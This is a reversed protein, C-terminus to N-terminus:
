PTPAAPPSSAPPSAGAAAAREARIEALLKATEAQQQRTAELAAGVNQGAQGAATMNGILSSNFSAIGFAVAIATGIVTVITAGAAGLVSRRTDALSDKIDRMGDEIRTLRGDMKAEITALKADLERHTPHDSMGGNDGVRYMRALAAAAVRVDASSRRAREMAFDIPEPSPM